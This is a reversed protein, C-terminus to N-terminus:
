PSAEATPPAPGSIGQVLAILAALVLALVVSVAVAALAGRVVQRVRTPLLPGHATAVGLATAIGALLFANAFASLPGAGLGIRAEDSEVVGGGLAALLGVLAAYVFTASLTFAAGSRTRQALYRGSVLLLVFPLLAFSTAPLGLVASGGIGLLAPVPPVTVSASGGHLLAFVLLGLSHPVAPNGFTGRLLLVLYIAAVLLVVVGLSLLAGM